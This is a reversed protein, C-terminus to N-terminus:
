NGNRGGRKLFEVLGSDHLLKLGQWIQIRGNFVPSSTFTAFIIEAANRSEAQAYEIRGSQEIRISLM